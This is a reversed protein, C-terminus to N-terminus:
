PRPGAGAGVPRYCRPCRTTRLTTERWGCTRCVAKVTLASPRDPRASPWSRNPRRAAARVRGICFAIVALELVIGLGILVGGVETEVPHSGRFGVILAYAGGLLAAHDVVLATWVSVPVSRPAGARDPDPGQDATM